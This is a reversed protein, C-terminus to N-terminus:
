DHLFWNRRFYKLFSLSVLLVSLFPKNRKFYKQLLVIIIVYCPLLIRIPETNAITPIMAMAPPM